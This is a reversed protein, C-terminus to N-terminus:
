GAKRVAVAQEAVRFGYWPKERPELSDGGMLRLLSRLQPPTPGTGPKRVAVSAPVLVGSRGKLLRATWELDRDFPDLGVETAPSQVLLSGRRALRISLVRREFAAVAPDPDLFQAVPLSRPDPSGDPTVIKSALLVPPQMPPRAVVDLLRELASPEPVASGDLLWLWSTEAGYPAAGRDATVVEDPVRSQRDLAELTERLAEDGRARSVV